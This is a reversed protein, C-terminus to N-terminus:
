FALGKAHHLKASKSDIAIATDFDEHALAYEERNLYVNGRNFFNEANSGCIADIADNYDKLASEYDRMHYHALGRNNLYLSLFEKSGSTPTSQEINIAKTYSTIAEDFEGSEYISLGLNNHAQAKLPQIEIARKLADISQSLKGVRRLNIGLNM